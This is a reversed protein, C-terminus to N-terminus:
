RKGGKLLYILFWRRNSSDGGQAMLEIFAPVTAVMKANQVTQTSNGHEEQVSQVIIGNCGQPIYANGVVYWANEVM